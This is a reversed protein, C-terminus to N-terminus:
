WRIEGKIIENKRENKTENKMYFMDNKM